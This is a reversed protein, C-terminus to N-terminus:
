VASLEEKHAQIMSDDEGSDHVIMDIVKAAYEHQQM